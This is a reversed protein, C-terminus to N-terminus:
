YLLLFKIPILSPFSLHTFWSDICNVKWHSTPVLIVIVRLFRPEKIDKEGLNEVPLPNRLSYDLLLTELDMTAVYRHAKETLFSYRVERSQRGSLCSVLYVSLPEFLVLSKMGSGYGRIRLGPLSIGVIYRDILCPLGCAHIKMCRSHLKYDQSGELEAGFM